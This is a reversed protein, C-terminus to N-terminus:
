TGAGTLEVAMLAPQPCASDVAIRAGTDASRGIATLVELVHQALDGSARPRRGARLSRALEIAGIGRADGLPGPLLAIEEWESDPGRRLRVPGDFGNPDPFHLSGATGHLELSSTYPTGVDFSTV